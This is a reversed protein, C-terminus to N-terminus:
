NNGKNQKNQKGQNNQNDQNNQKDQKEQNGGGSWEIRPLKKMKSVDKGAAKQIEYIGNYIMATNNYVGVSKALINNIAGMGNALDNIKQVGRNFEDRKIDKCKRDFQVGKMIEDVDKESLKDRHRYIEKPHKRLHEKLRQEDEVAKQAQKEINEKRKREKARALDEKLSSKKKESSKQYRLRGEPTLSGDPNQFRREGWKQGKIGSQALFENNNEKM